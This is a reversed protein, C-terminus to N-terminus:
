KVPMTLTFVTERDSSIAELKGGHAHAIESAIYLGLGLGKQNVGVEGRVFPQFLYKMNAEPIRQGENAVSLTFIGAISEAKVSIATNPRGYNFANGLLNSFMQAIRTGDCNVPEALLFQTMVERNPWVATLEDIVQMLVKEMPENPKKHLAIGSGLRGRAFDLVNEILGTMRLCCEQIMTVVTKTREDQQGRLLLQAGSSVANIPNRLDHGLIAIFQERLESTKRQEIVSAEAVELRWSTHMHCAVLEAFLKFMGITEPTNLLAPHTDMACLTGFFKKDNLIIPMSIYSQFGYKEPALHRCFTEDNAVHNIIIPKRSERIEKCLTTELSLQDGPKLGFNINDKVSCAIWQNDTVRAVAAFGMGTTRCIVDLITEVAPIRNVADIDVQVPAPIPLTKPKELTQVM